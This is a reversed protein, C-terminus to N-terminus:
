IMSVTFLRAIISYQFFIEFCTYFSKKCSVFKCCLVDKQLSCVVSGNLNNYVLNCISITVMVATITVVNQKVLWIFHSASVLLYIISAHIRQFIEVNPLYPLCVVHIVAASATVISALDALINQICQTKWLLYRWDRHLVCWIFLSFLM